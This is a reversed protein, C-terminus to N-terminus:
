EDGNKEAIAMYKRSPSLVINELQSNDPFRLFKQKFTEYEEICLVGALPYLIEDKSMFHINGSIETRIGYARKPKITISKSM